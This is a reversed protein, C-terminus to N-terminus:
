DVGAAGLARRAAHRALDLALVDHGAEGADVVAVRGFGQAAQLDVDGALLQGTCRGTLEVPRVQFAQAHQVGFADFEAPDGVQEGGAGVVDDHHAAALGLVQNGEHTRLIDHVHVDCAPREGDIPVRIPGRLGGKERK